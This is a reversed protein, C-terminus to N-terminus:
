GGISITLLFLYFSSKSKERDDNWDDRGNPAEEPAPDDDNAVHETSLYPSDQQSPEWSPSSVRDEKGPGQDHESFTEHAEEDQPISTYDKVRWPGPSINAMLYHGGAVNLGVVALSIRPAALSFM